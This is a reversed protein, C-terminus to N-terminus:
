TTLATLGSGLRLKTQDKPELMDLSSSPGVLRIYSCRGDDQSSM